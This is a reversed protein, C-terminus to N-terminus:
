KEKECISRCFSRSSLPLDLDTFLIRVNISLGLRNNRHAQEAKRGVEVRENIQRLSVVQRNDLIISLAKQGSVLAPKHSGQSSRRAEAKLAGLMHGAASVAAYAAVM